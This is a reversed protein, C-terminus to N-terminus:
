NRPVSYAGLGGEDVEGGEDGEGGGEKAQPTNDWTAKAGSHGTRVVQLTSVVGLLATLVVAIAMLNHARSPGVPTKVSSRAASEPGPAASRRKEVIDWAAIAILALAFLFVFPRAQEAIQSHQEVLKTERVREELAEGSGIALQVAVAAVAAIAAVPLGFRHRWEPKIAMFIAGLAALPVLVIPAHVLLPHAPLGFLDNLEVFATQRAVRRWLPVSRYLFTWNRVLEPLSVLRALVWRHGSIAGTPGIDSWL